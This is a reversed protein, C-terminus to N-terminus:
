YDILKRNNHTITTYRSRMLSIMSGYDDKSNIQFINSLSSVPCELYAATEKPESNIIRLVGQIKPERKAIDTKSPYPFALIRGYDLAARSAHLSGGTIGTQILVTCMSLAAQIRDRKVFHSRYAPTSFSYESILSGGLNLIEQALNSNSKPSISSLGHAMVATTRGANNKSCQHATSDIGLALGSVVNWGEKSFYEAIREAMLIGHRTPERTGIITISKESIIQQGKIYIIAPRDPVLRLLKPFNQDNESYIGVGNDLCLELEKHSDEIALDIQERSYKNRIHPQSNILDYISYAGLDEISSYKRLNGTGQGPLKSLVLLQWTKPFIGGPIM